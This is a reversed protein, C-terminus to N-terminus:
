FKFTPATAGAQLESDVCRAVFGYDGGGMEGMRACYNRVDEPLEAWRPKLADYSQQNSRICRARAEESGGSLEKMRQCYGEVDFRPIEADQAAAAGAALAIMAIPIMTLRM